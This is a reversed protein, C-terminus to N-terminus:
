VGNCIPLRVWTSIPFGKHCIGEYLERPQGGEGLNRSNQKPPIGKKSISDRYSKQKQYYEM